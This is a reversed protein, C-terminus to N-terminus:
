HPFPFLSGKVVCLVQSLGAPKSSGSTEWPGGRCAQRCTAALDLWRQPTQSNSPKESNSPVQISPGPNWRLPVWGGTMPSTGARPRKTLPQGAGAETAWRLPLEPQDTTFSLGKGTGWTPHSYGAERAEGPRSEEELNKGIMLARQLRLQM